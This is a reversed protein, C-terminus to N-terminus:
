FIDSLTKVLGQELAPRADSFGLNRHEIVTQTAACSTLLVFGLAGAIYNATRITKKFNNM